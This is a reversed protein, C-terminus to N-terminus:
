EALLSDAEIEVRSVQLGAANVSSIASRIAEDLSPSDRCFDIRTVRDATSITGDDCGAEYLANCEDDTVEEAALVLTFEHRPM